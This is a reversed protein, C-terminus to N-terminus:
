NLESGRNIMRTFEKLQKRKKSNIKNEWRALQMDPNLVNKRFEHVVEKASKDDAQDLINAAKYLYRLGNPNDTNELYKMSTQIKDFESQYKENYDLENKLDSLNSIIDSHAQNCDSIVDVLIHKNITSKSSKLETKDFISSDSNFSLNRSFRRSSLNERDKRKFNLSEAM